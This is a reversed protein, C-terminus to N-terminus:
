FGLITKNEIFDATSIGTGSKHVFPHFDATVKVHNWRSISFVAARLELTISLISVIRTITGPLGSVQDQLVVTVM